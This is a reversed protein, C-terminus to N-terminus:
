SLDATAEELLHAFKSGPNVPKQEEPNLPFFHFVLAGTRSM